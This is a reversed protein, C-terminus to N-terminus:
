RGLWDDLEAQSFTGLKRRLIRGDEGILVSYPLVRRMNGFSLSGGPADNDALVIPYDVPREALYSRVANASDEAVGLIAVNRERYRGANESLLPMERRCPACWTAWFNILVRKGRWDSLLRPKGEVSVFTADPPLDGVDAVTVGAPPPPHARRHELYLGTAAAAIALLVIWATPRRTM